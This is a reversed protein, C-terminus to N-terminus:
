TNSDGLEFNYKRGDPDTVSVIRTGWHTGVVESGTQRTTGRGWQEVFTFGLNSWWAVSDTWHNTERYLHDLRLDTM